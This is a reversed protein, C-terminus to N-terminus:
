SWTKGLYADIVQANATVEDLAGEILVKGEALVTVRSCLQRIVSM